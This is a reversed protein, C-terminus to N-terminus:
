KMFEPRVAAFFDKRGMIPRFRGCANHLAAKDESTTKSNGGGFEFMIEHNVAIATHIIKQDNKGFFLIDGLQCHDEHRGWPQWHYIGQASMDHRPAKGFINLYELVAGSCDMGRFNYGGWIYPRNLHSHIWMMLIQQNNM